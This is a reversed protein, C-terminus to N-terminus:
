KDSKQTDRLHAIGMGLVTIFLFVNAQMELSFDVLSHVGGLLLICLGALAITRNHPNTRFVGLLRWCVLMLGILPLSGAILGLESWLTLYTSHPLEWTVHTPLPPMHVREFSLHFSDLGFGTLPRDMIMQWTQSWLEVRGGRHQMVFLLRDVLKDGFLVVAGILALAVAGIARLAARKPNKSLKTQILVIYTAAGIITATVGMRSQTSVLAITMMVICILAYISELNEASFLSKNPRRMRPRAAREHLMALGLVIGMGMFTAFSNRNIFTGTAAGLYTTKEGWFFTDDLITLAVMAWIAHVTMGLVIVWAMRRIRTSQTSVELVLFLLALYTGIRLIGLLTASPALSIQPTDFMDNPVIQVGAWIMMVAGLLFLPRHKASRLAREPTRRSLLTVYAAVLLMLVAAWAMWIVPRNSGVPIPAILVVACILWAYIDNIRRMAKGSRRKRTPATTSRVDFQLESTTSAPTNQTM